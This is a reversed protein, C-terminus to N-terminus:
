LKQHIIFRKIKYGFTSTVMLWWFNWLPL